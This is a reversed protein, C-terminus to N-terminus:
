SEGEPEVSMLEIIQKSSMSDNVVYNGPYIEEDYCITQAWFVYADGIIKKKALSKGVSLPSQGEVVSIEITQTAQPSLPTEAFVAYGFRYAKTIGVYFIVVIMCLFALRLAVQLIEITAQRYHFRTDQEPSENYKKKQNKVTQDAM